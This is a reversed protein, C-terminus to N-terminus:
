FKFFRSVVRKNGYEDEAKVTILHNGRNLNELTIKFREDREDFLGDMPEARIFPGGDLSYRVSLRSHNDVARGKVEIRGNKKSIYIDLRPPTRDIYIFYDEIKETKLFDYPSHSLSDSAVIKLGYSGEPFNEFDLYCYTDTIDKGVKIDFGDKILYVNFVMMDQDPDEADWFVKARESSDMSWDVSSIFPPRNIFNYWIKLSKVFANKQNFIIKIQINRKKLKIEGEIARWPTWEEDVEDTNGGRVFMSISGRSVTEVAGWRIGDKGKIVDTLYEGRSARKKILFIRGEDLTLIFVKKGTKKFGSIGDKIRTYSKLHGRGDIFYISGSETGLMLNGDMLIMDNVAEGMKFIREVRNGVMRYVRSSDGSESLGVFFITDGKVTLNNLEYDKAEYVVDIKKGLRYIKGSNATAVFVTKGDKVLIDMIHADKLTDVKVIEGKMIYFIIGNPGTGVLVTDGKLNFSWVYSQSTSFLTDGEISLIVGGPSTGMFIKGRLNFLSIVDLNKLELLKRTKKGKIFYVITREGTLATIYGDRYKVIDWVSNEDFDVLEEIIYGPQIGKETLMTNMFEGDMFDEGKINYFKETAYLFSFVLLITIKRM